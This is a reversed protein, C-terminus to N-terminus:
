NGGKDNDYRAHNNKPNPNMMCREPTTLSKFSIQASTEDLELFRAM